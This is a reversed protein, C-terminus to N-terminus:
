PIQNRATEKAAPLSQAAKLRSTLSETRKHPWGLKRAVASVHHLGFETRLEAGSPQVPEENFSAHQQQVQMLNLASPSVFESVVEGAEVRLAEQMQRLQELRQHQSVSLIAGELLLQQTEM